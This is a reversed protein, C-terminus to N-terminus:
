TRPGTPSRSSGKENVSGVDGTRLWGDDFKEPAADLYYAATIWPGRVEIEGVAEDDWPLPNGVDDVIRLEVGAM